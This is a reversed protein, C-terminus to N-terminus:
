KWAHEGYYVGVQHNQFVENEKSAKILDELSMSTTGFNETIINTNVGKTQVNTAIDFFLATGDWNETVNGLNHFFTCNQVKLENRGAMYIRHCMLVLQELFYM